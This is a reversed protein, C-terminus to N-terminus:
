INGSKNKQNGSRAKTKSEGQQQQGAKSAEERKRALTSYVPPKHLQHVTSGGDRSTCSTDIPTLCINADPGGPFFVSKNAHVHVIAPLATPPGILSATSTPDYVDVAQQVLATVIPTLQKNEHVIIKMIKAVNKAMAEAIENDNTVLTWLRSPSISIGEHGYQASLRQVVYQLLSYQTDLISQSTLSASEIQAKHAKRLDANGIPEVM